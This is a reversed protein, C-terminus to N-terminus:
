QDDVIQGGCIFATIRAKFVLNIIVSPTEQSANGKSGQQAHSRFKRKAVFLIIENSGNALGGLFVGILRPLLKHLSLQINLGCERDTWPPWEANNDM